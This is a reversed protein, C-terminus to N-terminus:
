RGRAAPVTTALSALLERGRALAGSLMEQPLARAAFRARECAAGLQSLRERDVEHPLHAARVLEHVTLARAPPLREQARLRAVVLELLLRPQETPSVSQLERLALAPADAGATGSASSRGRRGRLWGAVRLENGVIAAAVVLVLALAGWTGVDLMSQPLHVRALLRRLWGEDPTRARPTFVERLWQKFLAWWGSPRPESAKLAALVAAVDAVRAAPTHAVPPERTLLTRLEELGAATLENGPRSWDRPLWAAWPSAALTATLEPCRVAIRSYGVDLGADLQSICGDLAALAEHADPADRTAPSERAGALPAGAVTLLLALLWRSM